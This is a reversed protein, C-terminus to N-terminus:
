FFDDLDNNEVESDLLREISSQATEVAKRAYLTFTDKDVNEEFSLMTGIDLLIPLNLGSIVEINEPYKLKLRYSENYPTGGKIDTFLFLYNNKIKEEVLSHFQKSFTEIGEETLPLAFIHEAKGAIMQYANKLEISLQGHSVLLIVANM